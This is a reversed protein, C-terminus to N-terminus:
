VDCVIIKPALYAEAGSRIKGQVCEAIAPKNAAVIQTTGDRSHVVGEAIAVDQGRVAFPDDFRVRLQGREDPSEELRVSM